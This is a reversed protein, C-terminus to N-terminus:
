SIELTRTVCMQCNLNFWMKVILLKIHVFVSLVSHLTYVIRYFKSLWKKHSHTHSGPAYAFTSIILHYLSIFLCSACSGMSMQCLSIDVGNTKSVSAHLHTRMKHMNLKVVIDIVIVLNFNCAIVAQLQGAM